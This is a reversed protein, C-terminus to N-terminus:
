RLFLYMVSPFSACLSLHLCISMSLSHFVCCFISVIIILSLIFGVACSPSLILSLIFYVVVSSSLILSLIFYVAFSPSLLLCLPFSVCHCFTPSPRWPLCSYMKKLIVKVFTLFLFCLLFFNRSFLCLLCFLLSFCRISYNDKSSSKFFGMIITNAWLLYFTWQARVCVFWVCVCLGCVCVCVRARACPFLSCCFLLFWFFFSVSLFLCVFFSFLLYLFLFFISVTRTTTKQVHLQGGADATMWYLPFNSDMHTTPDLNLDLSRGGVHVTLALRSPPSDPSPGPEASLRGGTVDVACYGPVMTQACCGPLMTQTCCGPVMTQICFGPVMTQACCCPVMTQTCCGPVMTQICFGPVMTQACCGPVITQACCGPISSDHNTCLLWSGHNLQTCCVSRLRSPDEINHGKDYARTQTHTHAHTRAHTRAHTHTHTSYM